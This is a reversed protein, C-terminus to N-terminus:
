NKGAKTAQVRESLEETVVWRVVKQVGPSLLNFSARARTILEPVDEEIACPLCKSEDCHCHVMVGSVVAIIAAEKAGPKSMLDEFIM